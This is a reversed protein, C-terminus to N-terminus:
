TRMRDGGPDVLVDGTVIAQARRDFADIELAAGDDVDSPLYAYGITREVTPGYAVSRLRAVVEGDLRVAEGGYVPEYAAGGIVLTRLRRDSGTAHAAVLAESGVFPGKALRVFAGLGAEFPTDLMTLDTGFYRYGKEMRLADLARYGLPELGFEAGAARLRDWVTVAWAVPTTLEWGLEGAYSIRAADVPAPGVRISRTRRMPLGDNGVEDSSAGAAVLVDRARPGWLGITAFDGSIDRIEVAEDDGGHTRLWAMESALYGAGTVVRFRDGALRSVTVDAVMGGREDCWQTYVVSGVPRDIDNASVRQLLGPAGPGEVAIKGFSSLDIIGARERVARAEAGVREFWPPRTWGYGAQDRGARRWPRGPEHYDAREWGAKTGFVAGAEQLRGYLASLRRPRGALDADFPYRLRYYDSYTERGLGAAFEPDRYVDAFRWARYPGIDVGPDGATIWGALARGIGGGGGFGNLSLGAAVWFGRVGPLPGLLPNADPTMADPHCVLRIAEADALFPFRRIAGAMLPAFRDWDPPLSQAAHEWPVGDEWRSRPDLEYGGFVM